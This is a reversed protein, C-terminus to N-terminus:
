RGSVALMADRVEEATLRRMSFRWLLTNAPDVRLGAASAQASMRYANSLLLLKHMRKIKWGGRVFEGALWDLLEPHTPLTGFKGFDHSSAVLGKGFHHQWLRNVLVVEALSENGRGVVEALKARQRGM